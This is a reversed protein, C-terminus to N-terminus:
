FEDLKGRAYKEQGKGEKWARCRIRKISVMQLFVANGSRPTKDAARQEGESYRIKSIAKMEAGVLHSIGAPLLTYTVPVMLM